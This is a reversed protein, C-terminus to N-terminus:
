LNFKKSAPSDIPPDKPDRTPIPPNEHPGIRFSQRPVVESIVWPKEADGRGEAAPSEPSRGELEQHSGDKSQLIAARVKRHSSSSSSEM